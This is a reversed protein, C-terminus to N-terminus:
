KSDGEPSSAHEYWDDHRSWQKCEPCKTDRWPLVCGPCVGRTDFTNWVHRCVCRWRSKRTPKWRCNPCRIKQRGRGGDVRKAVSLVGLAKAWRAAKKGAQRNKEDIAREDDRRMEAIRREREDNSLAQWVSWKPLHTTM